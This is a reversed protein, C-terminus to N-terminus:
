QFLVEAPCKQTSPCSCLLSQLLLTWADGDQRIGDHGRHFECKDLM